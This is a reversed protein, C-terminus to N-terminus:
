KNKKMQTLNQNSKNPFPRENLSLNCLRIKELGFLVPEGRLKFYIPAKLKSLFIKQNKKVRMAFKEKVYIFKNLYIIDCKGPNWRM